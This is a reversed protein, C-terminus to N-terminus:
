RHTSIKANPNQKCALLYDDVFTLFDEYKGWGNPSNFQRYYDPKERLSVLGDYLPQILGKAKVVGLEEPRWLYRYIGAEDAMNILNHTINSSFVIGKRNELYVDLSM